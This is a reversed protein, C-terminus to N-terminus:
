YTTMYIYNDWDSLCVSGDSSKILTGDEVMENVLRETEEIDMAYGYQYYPSAFYVPEDVGRQYSAFQSRIRYKWLVDYQAYHPRNINYKDCFKTVLLQQARAEIQGWSGIVCNYDNIPEGISSIENELRNISEDNLEISSYENDLNNLAIRFQAFDHIQKIQPRFLLLVDKMSIPLPISYSETEADIMEDLVSLAHESEKLITEAPYDESLLIYNDSSWFFSNWDGGCRAKQLLLLIDAFDSSYEPGVADYAIKQTLEVTDLDPNKLLEGASYLSFVNIVHNADMESWYSPKCISDYKRAENYTSKIMDVNYNLQALQDIEMECNNWSWTGLENERCGVFSRFNEYDAKNDRFTGEYFTFDSGLENYLISKDCSGAWCSIGFNVNPNVALFKSWLLRSYFAIDTSDSLNGPDYFHAIVRDTCDALEAYKNYYEDFIAYAEPNARVNEDYPTLTVNSDVWGYGDFEAGWVWLTTNMGLCHAADFMVRIKDQVSKYGGAGAWASCMDTVQIGNYGCYQIMRVYDYLQDDSFSMIDTMLSVDSSLYFGRPYNTNWLTIIPERQEIWPEIESSINIHITSQICNFHEKSTGAYYWGLYRNAFRCVADNLAEYDSATISVVTDNNSIEFSNESLDESISLQILYPNESQKNSRSVSPILGSCQAIYYQLQKASFGESKTDYSISFNNLPIDNIYVEDYMNNGSSHYANGEYLLINGSDDVYKNLLCNIALKMSNDNDAYIYLINDYHYLLYDGESIGYAAIGMDHVSSIDNTMIIVNDYIFSSLKNYKFLSINTDSKVVNKLYGIMEDSVNGYLISYNGISTQIKSKYRYIGLLSILIISILIFSLLVIKKLINKITM